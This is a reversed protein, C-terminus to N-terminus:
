PLLEKPIPNDKREEDWIAAAIWWRKGDWFLEISNVGRNVVPGDQTIRSEYTSLVHVINGFRETSRHIEGEFFGKSVLQSNYHDVEQQHSMVRAHPNRKSDEDMAVFRAGPIYLTRDRSWQRPQGAPASIVDYFAKIIADISAVDEPRPTISPVSVQPTKGRQQM